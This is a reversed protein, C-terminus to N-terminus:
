IVMGWEDQHSGWNLCMFEGVIEFKSNNQNEFSGFNVNTM